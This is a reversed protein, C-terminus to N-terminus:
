MSENGMTQAEEPRLQQNGGTGAPVVYAVHFPPRPDTGNDNLFENLSVTESVRLSRIAAVALEVKGFSTRVPIETEAVQVMLVDGNAATLKACNTETFEIACIEGVPLKLDGLLASHLQIQSDVSQGVVRSGDRLEITLHPV